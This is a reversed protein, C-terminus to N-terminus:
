GQAHRMLWPDTMLKEPTQRNEPSWQLMKNMFDIFLEKDNGELNKELQEL